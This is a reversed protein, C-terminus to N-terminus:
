RVAKTVSNTHTTLYPLLFVLPKSPRPRVSQPMSCAVFGTILELSHALSAPKGCSHGAVISWLGALRFYTLTDYSKAENWTAERLREGDGKWGEFVEVERSDKLAIGADIIGM